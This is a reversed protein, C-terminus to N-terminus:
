GSLVFFEDKDNREKDKAVKSWLIIYSYRWLFYIFWVINLVIHLIHSNSDDKPRKKKNRNENDRQVLIAKRKDKAKYDKVNRM